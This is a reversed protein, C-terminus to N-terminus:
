LNDMQGYMQFMPLMVAGIIVIVIAALVLIIMPELAAIVSQTAMEVEEDYYDALRSLMGELDGTEEGIRTMHGVMPPFMGSQVIPESLSVGKAVEERAHNLAQKYLYNSMTNATIALADMMPLGSYILTSLTRAYNSSAQKITMKGFIPIKRAITGFVIQGTITKKFVSIAFGAAILVVIIWFWDHMIFDSVAVVAKTLGPLEGGLQEFLSDYAPIVKVLMVIIVIVAVIMVIIPYIMAKKVIAKLKASKEFHTAMREFAIDLKGSAEGAAVMSCMIDPFVKPYKSLAESLTEGKRIETHVGRIAKAMAANETQDALMDLSDLITVGARVMSIFQRCFVSLDRPKVAKGITINIEKTLASAKTVNVVTFGENKLKARVEDVTEAQMNGKKEKGTKDVVLYNFEAM